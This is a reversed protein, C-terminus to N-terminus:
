EPEVRMASEEASYGGRDPGAERAIEDAETDQHTGEDPAVLRGARRPEDWVQGSPEEPQAPWEQGAGTGPEYGTSLDSGPGLGSDQTLREEGAEEEEAEGGEDGGARDAAPRGPGAGFDPQKEPEERELRDELPEGRAQEEGTIGYDEMAEPQEGPVPAEQPDVAWEQEPSGNQLDPMGEDEFRSRPDPEPTQHTM